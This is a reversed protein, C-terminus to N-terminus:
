TALKGPSPSVELPRNLRSSIMKWTPSRIDLLIKQGQKMSHRGPSVQIHWNDSLSQWRKNHPRFEVSGTSLNLWHTHNAILVAPLDDKLKQPPILEFIDDCHQGKARIILKDGAMRFYVRHGSILGRTAYDMGSMDSPMVDVVRNRFITMFLTNEQIIRPLTRVAKGDVLLSGDLIDFYVKWSQQGRSELIRTTVWSYRTSGVRSSPVGRHYTSWADKRICQHYIPWVHKVALDIGECGAKIIDSIVHQLRWSLHRDRELLWNNFIHPSFHNNGFAHLNLPSNNHIIIACSLFIEIARPSHLLQTRIILEGIDFTSRCIAAMDRLRSQLEAKDEEDTTNELKKVLELVWCFTKERVTHLLQCAQQTTDVRGEVTPSEALLRSVLYVVTSMTIGELWNDSAAAILSELETLLSRCFSPCGLEHHWVLEGTNSCPGVQGAAQVLLMHVAERRFSLTNARVERLINMWQLFPGNRLHGFALFEHISLDKDCDAQNCIVDNSTHTTNRLYPRLNWYPDPPFSGLIFSCLSSIDLSGLVDSVRMCTYTDFYYFDLGDNVANRQESPINVVNHYSEIHPIAESALIVCSRKHKTYYPHLNSYIELSIPPWKPSNPPFRLRALLHFTTSRWMNFAVPCRLEFVVTAARCSNKPLPWEYVTSRMRDMKKELRCRRYWRKARSDGTPEHNHGTPVAQEQFQAYLANAPHPDELKKMRASNANKVIRSMLSQLQSSQNYYRVAFSDVDAQNSFVSYGNRAASHRDSIYRFATRFRLLHEPHRLLLRELFSTPVEPSYDTLMPIQRTVLKDLAIWLEIVTLFMRSIAEPNYTDIEQDDRNTVVVLAYTELAAASYGKQLLELRESASDISSPSIDEVWQDIGQGVEREVDYLTLYPERIYAAQFFKGDASLFDVLTGRMRSEPKFTPSPRISHVSSLARQIYESSNLMSLRTDASFDLTSPAWHPTAADTAQVEKWRADLLARTNTCTELVAQSLWESASEGLKALRRSIKAVTWQLVDNSMDHQLAQRALQNMFFLIFTKYINRGLASRELTTQTAVRIILWVPSRRWPRQSNNRMIGDEIRKCIRLIDVPRGVGRLIGTLLETIYRPHATDDEQVVTLGAEHTEPPAGLNDINMQSLFHALESVFLPDGFVKNPVAIAPGPYSCILKGRTAMVVKTSPSVEFSEAFTENEFKRFIVAANQARIFFTRVDGVGMSQLQSVIFGEGLAESANADNFSHLMGVIHQWELKESGSLYEAYALASAYAAESLARDKSPSHDDGDPLELPFFVHTIKYQLTRDEATDSSGGCSFCNVM